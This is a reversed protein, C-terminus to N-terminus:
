VKIMLMVQDFMLQHLFPLYHQLLQDVVMFLLLLAFYIIVKQSNTIHIPYTHYSIKRKRNIRPPSQPQQQQQM